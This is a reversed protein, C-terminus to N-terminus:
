FQTYTVFGSMQVAASTTICLAQGAPVVLVPGLGSGLTFGANAILPIAGSLSTTGTGCSSGTGYVLTINGTGGAIVALGTVYIQTSGSLAVLQTTTATSVNVAVTASGQAVNVSNAGARAGMAQINAPVAAGTAGHGHTAIAAQDTAMTVRASGTGTNGAGMLPTVGNIQALNVSQNATLAGITASGTGLVFAANSAPTVSLSNASTTSGLAAPLKASMATINQATRQMRGNLGSSATDSAPATETLSGLQAKGETSLAVGLSASDAGTGLATPLQANSANVSTNLTTLNQAIRQLRGNLGSSATDSAPATETLAGIPTSDNALTVRQVGTGSAGNGAVALVGAYTQQNAVAGNRLTWIRTADGDASVDTPAAASAYAGILVPNVATGVSDHATGGTVNGGGAGGTVVNVRLNGATDLSLPSTQATTYSPAATTVAGQILNGTQGSTTSGQSVGGASVTGTIRLQGSTDLSLPSTQGTTYTPAATTVAGQILAGSQGSTTSGQTNVANQLLPLVVPTSSGAVAQGLAPTKGDITNLQATVTRLKASVSGTSGQTAAADAVAGVGGAIATEQTIQSTQNAASADGAGGSINAVGGAAAASTLVSVTATGTVAGLATIRCAYAGVCDGSLQYVGQEASTITATTAGTALRRFTGSGGVTVWTTGDTTAQLSLGGSATYTGSVQVSATGQGKMDFVVCSGATCAATPASNIITIARQQLPQAQSIVAFLLLSILSLIRKM